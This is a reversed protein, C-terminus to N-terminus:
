AAESRPLHRRFLFGKYVGQEPANPVVPNEDVIFERELQFGQRNLFRMMKGENLFWCAYQTMYGFSHPRQIVVFDESSKVFPTRTIMLWETRACLQKLVNWIDRSYHLSSSAFILDYRRSLALDNSELFVTDSQVRRGAECLSPLDKVVYDFRVEPYLERAIRAYHGIGGGWDLVRMPRGAVTAAVRGLLYAFTMLKNHERVNLAVDVSAEHAQGFAKPSAIGALFAPWKEVQTEAVSSHDWGDWSQGDNAVMEWEPRQSDSGSRLMRNRAALLASLVLPPTLGIVIRRAQMWM